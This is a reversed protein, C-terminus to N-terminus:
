LGNKRKALLRRARVAETTGAHQDVIRSLLQEAQAKRGLALLCKARRFLAEAELPRYRKDQKLYDKFLSAAKRHNGLKEQLLAGAMFRARNSGSPGSRDMVERYAAVAGDYNGAKRRCSALLGWARVDDPFKGLHADLMSRARGYDGGLIMQRVAEHDFRVQGSKAPSRGPGPDPAEDFIMDYKALDGFVRVEGARMLHTTKDPEIVRVQGSYVSVKVVTESKLNVEFSTGVVEVRYGGATVSLSGAKKRSKAKVKLRGKLLAFLADKQGARVVEARSNDALEIQDGLADVLLRGEGSVSLIKTDSSAADSIQGGKSAIIQLQEPPTDAIRPVPKAVEPAESGWLLFISVAIAM